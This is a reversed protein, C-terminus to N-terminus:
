GNDEGDLAKITPCPYEFAYYDYAEYCHGCFVKGLEDGWDRIKPKHLAKVRKVAEQAEMMENAAFGRVIVEENDNFFSM